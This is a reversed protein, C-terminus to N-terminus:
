KVLTSIPLEENKLFAKPFTDKVKGLLTIAEETTICNGVTVTFYPSNYAMYVKVDPYTTTCLARANEAGARSNQGNDFFICIRYGKVHTRANGSVAKAVAEAADGRETVTVTSPTPEALQAKFAALSQAGSTLTLLLLAATLILSKHIM